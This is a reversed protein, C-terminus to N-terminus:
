FSADRFWNWLIGGVLVVGLVGFFVYTNKMLVSFKIFSLPMGAICVFVAAKKQSMGTSQLSQVVSFGTSVATTLMAMYLVASYVFYAVMGAKESLLLLPLDSNWVGHNFYLALCAFFAMCSLVLGGLVGGFAAIKKDPSLGAAPVLVAVSTLMNYGVYFLAYPLFRGHSSVQPLWVSTNSTVLAYFCVYLTGVLMIPALILNLVSLGKLDFLFVLLCLLTTVVIGAYVPLSFREVFFAGSGSLMVCFSVCLFVMIVASLVRAGSDGFITNLYAKPTKKCLSHSRSLILAGLICFLAGALLCGVLGRRSFRAFFLLLEQGSAFGAGLVTGVYISAIKLLSGARKKM